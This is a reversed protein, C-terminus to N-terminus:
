FLIGMKLCLQNLYNRGSDPLYEKQLGPTLGVLYGLEFSLSTRGDLSYLAGGGFYVNGAFPNLFESDHWQGEADKTRENRLYSFVLGSKAFLTTYGMQRTSLKLLAPIDLYSGRISRLSDHLVMNSGRGTLVFGTNIAYRDTFYIDTTLGLGFNMQSSVDTLAASELRSWAPILEVGIQVRQARAGNVLMIFLLITLISSKAAISPSILVKPPRYYNNTLNMKHAM